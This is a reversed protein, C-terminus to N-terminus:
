CYVKLYTSVKFMEDKKNQTFGEGDYPIFSRGCYSVGANTSTVYWSVCAAFYGCGLCTILFICLCHSCLSTSPRIKEELKMQIQGLCKNTIILLSIGQYWLSLSSFFFLFHKLCDKLWSLSFWSKNNDHFKWKSSHCSKLRSWFCLRQKLLATWHGLFSHTTFERHFYFFNLNFFVQM